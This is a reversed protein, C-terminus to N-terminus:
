AFRRKVLKIFKDAKKIKDVHAWNQDKAIGTALYAKAEQYTDLENIDPTPVTPTVVESSVINALVQEHAPEPKTEQVIPQQTYTKPTSVDAPFVTSAKGDLVYEYAERLYSLLLDKEMASVDGDEKISDFLMNIKSLRKGFKKINM